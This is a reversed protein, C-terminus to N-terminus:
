GFIWNVHCHYTWAHFGCWHMPPIGTMFVAACLCVSQWLSFCLRSSYVQMQVCVSNPQIYKVEPTADCGGSCCVRGLWMDASITFCPPLCEIHHSSAIMLDVLGQLTDDKSYVMMVNLFGVAKENVTGLSFVSKQNHKWTLIHLSM